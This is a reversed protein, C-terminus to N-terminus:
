GVPPKAVFGPINPCKDIAGLPTESRIGTSVYASAEVM